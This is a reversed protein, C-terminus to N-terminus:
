ELSERWSWIHVDFGSEAARAAAPIMDADGSVIAFPCKIGVFMYIAAHYAVDVVFNTDVQKEDGDFRSRKFTMDELGHPLRARVEVSIPQIDSGYRFFPWIFTM